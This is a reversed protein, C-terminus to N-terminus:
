CLLDKATMNENKLGTTKKFNFRHQDSPTFSSNCKWIHLGQLLLKLHKTKGEKGLTV